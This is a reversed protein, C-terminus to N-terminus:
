SEGMSHKLAEFDFPRFAPEDSEIHEDCPLIKALISISPINMTFTADTKIRKLWRLINYNDFIVLIKKKNNGFAEKIKKSIDNEYGTTLGDIIMKSISRGCTIGKASFLDQGQNTFDCLISLLGLQVGTPTLGHGNERMQLLIECVSTALAEKQTLEEAYESATSTIYEVAATVLWENSNWINQQTLEPFLTSYNSTATASGFCRKNIEQHTTIRKSVRNNKILEELTSKQNLAQKFSKACLTKLLVDFLLPCTTKVRTIQETSSEQLGSYL